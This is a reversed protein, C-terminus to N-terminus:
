QAVTERLEDLRERAQALDRAMDSDGAIAGSQSATVLADDMRSVMADWDVDDPQRWAMRMEGAVERLVDATEKDDHDVLLRRSIAELSSVVSRSSTVQPSSERDRAMPNPGKGTREADRDVRARKGERGRPLGAKVTEVEEPAADAAPAVAVPTAEGPEPGSLDRAPAVTSPDPVGTDPNLELGPALLIALGISAAGLAILPWRKM